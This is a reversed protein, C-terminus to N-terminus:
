GALVGSNYVVRGGGMTLHARLDPLREDPIQLPDDTPMTVVWEGPHKRAVERKIIALIDAISGVGELGPPMNKLGERDMHAHTDIIGPIVTHGQLDIVRTDPGVLTHLTDDRGIAQMHRGSIAVAQQLSSTRDMTLVQGHMLLIDAQRHGQTTM